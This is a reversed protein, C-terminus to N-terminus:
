PYRSDEIFDDLDEEILLQVMENVVATYNHIFSAYVSHTLELEPITKPHSQCFSFGMFQFCFEVMNDKENLDIKVREGLAFEFTEKIKTYEM